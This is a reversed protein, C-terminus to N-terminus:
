RNSGLKLWKLNERMKGGPRTACCELRRDRLANRYIRLFDNVFQEGSHLREALDHNAKGLTSLEEGLSLLNSLANHFGKKSREPFTQLERHEAVYSAAGGKSSILVPLGQGMAELPSYAFLERKSPLVYLDAGQLAALVEAQSLGARVRISEGSDVLEQATASLKGGQKSGPVAWGIIELSFSGPNSKLHDLIWHLRKRPQELKGIVVIHCRSASRTISRGSTPAPFRLHETRPLSMGGPSGWWEVPTFRRHPGLRIRRWVHRAGFGLVRRPDFVLTALGLHAPAQDYVIRPIGLAGAARWVRMRQASFDRQVLFDIKQSELFASIGHLRTQLQDWYHVDGFSKPEAQSKRQLLFVPSLGAALLAVRIERFNPHFSRMVFLVRRPKEADDALDAPLDLEGFGLATM